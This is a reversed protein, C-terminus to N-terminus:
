RTPSCAPYARHLGGDPDPTTRQADHNFRYRHVGRRHASRQHGAGRAFSAYFVAPHAADWLASTARGKSASSICRPRRGGAIMPAAGLIPVIHLAPFRSLLQRDRPSTSSRSRSSRSRAAARCALHLGHPRTGLPLTREAGLLPGGGRRREAGARARSLAATLDNSRLVFLVIAAGIFVVIQLIMGVHRARGGDSRIPPAARGRLAAGIPRAGSSSRSRVGASDRDLLVPPRALLVGPLSAAPDDPSM